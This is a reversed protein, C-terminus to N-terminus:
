GWGLYVDIGSRRKMMRISALKGPHCSSSSSSPMSLATFGKGEFISRLIARPRARMAESRVKIDTRHCCIALEVADTILPLRDYPATSPCIPVVAITNPHAPTNRLMKINMAKSRMIKFM